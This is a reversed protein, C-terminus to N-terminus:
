LGAAAHHPRYDVDSCAPGHLWLDAAVDGMMPHLWTWSLSDCCQRVQSLMVEVDPYSDAHM